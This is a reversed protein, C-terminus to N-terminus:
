RSEVTDLIYIYIGVARLYDFFEVLLHRDRGATFQFPAAFLGVHPRYERRLRRHGVRSRRVQGVNRVRFHQRGFVVVNESVVVVVRVRRRRYAPVAVVPVAAAVVPRWARGTQRRVGDLLSRCLRGHYPSVIRRGRRDDVFRGPPSGV